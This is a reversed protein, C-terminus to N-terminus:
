KSTVNLYNIYIGNAISDFEIQMIKTCDKFELFRSCKLFFIFSIGFSNM